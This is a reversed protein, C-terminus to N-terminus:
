THVEMRPMFGFQRHASGPDSRHLALSSVVVGAREFQLYAQMPSADKPFDLLASFTSQLNTSHIMLTQNCLLVELILYMLYFHQMLQM